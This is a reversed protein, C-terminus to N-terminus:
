VEIGLASIANINKEAREAKLQSVEIQTAEDEFLKGYREIYDRFRREYWTLEREGDEESIKNDLIDHKLEMKIEKSKNIINKIKIKNNLLLYKMDNCM